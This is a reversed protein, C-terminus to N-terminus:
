KYSLPYTFQVIEEQDKKYVQYIGGANTIYLRNLMDQLRMYQTQEENDYLPSWNIIAVIRDDERSVSLTSMPKAGTKNEILLLSMILRIMWQHDPIITTNSINVDCNIWM